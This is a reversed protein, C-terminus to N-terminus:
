CGALSSINSSPSLTPDARPTCHRCCSRVNSSSPSIFLTLNSTAGKKKKERWAIYVEKSFTIHVLKSWQELEDTLERMGDRAIAETAASRQLASQLGALPERAVFAPDSEVVLTYAAKARPTTVLASTQAKISRLTANPSGQSGILHTHAFAASTGPPELRAEAPLDILPDTAPLEPPPPVSRDLDEMMRQATLRLSQLPEAVKAKAKLAAREIDTASLALHELM